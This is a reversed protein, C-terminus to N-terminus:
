VEICDEIAQYPKVIVKTGTRLQAYIKGNWSWTKNVAPNSRAINLTEVNFSTLDEVVTM